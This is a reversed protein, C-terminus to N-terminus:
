SKPRRAVVNSPTQKLYLGLHNGLAEIIVEKPLAVIAPVRLVYRLFALGVLQSAIMAANLTADKGSSIKAIAPQVQKTFIQIIKERGSPHTVSLRLLAPLEDGANEGEWREIFHRVIAPGRNKTGIASFDPLKLNFSFAATFLKEKTGFYRMVLSPHISAEEAVLRITTREYGLEGFLRRAATLIRSPAPERATQAPQQKPKKSAVAKM